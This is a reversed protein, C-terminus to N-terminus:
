INVNREGAWVHCVVDLTGNEFALCQAALAKLLEGNTEAGVSHEDFSIVKGAPPTEHRALPHDDAVLADPDSIEPIELLVALRM